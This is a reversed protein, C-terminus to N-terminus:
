TEGSPPKGKNGRGKAVAWWIWGSYIGIILLNTLLVPLSFLTRLFIEPYKSLPIDSGWLQIPMVAALMLIFVALWIKAIYIVTRLITPAPQDKMM